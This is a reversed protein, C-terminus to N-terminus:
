KDSWDELNYDQTEPDGPPQLPVHKAAMKNLQDDICLFIVVISGGVLVFALWYFFTAWSENTIM